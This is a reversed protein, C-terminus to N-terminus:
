ESGDAIAELQDDTLDELNNPAGKGIEVKQREVILGFLKATKEAVRAAAEHENAALLRKTALSYTGLVKARIENKMGPSSEKALRDKAARIFEDIAGPARHKLPVAAAKRRVSAQEKPSLVEIEGPKMARAEARAEVESGYAAIIEARTLWSGLLGAVLEVAAQTHPLLKSGVRGARPGKRRNKKPHKQVKEITTAM